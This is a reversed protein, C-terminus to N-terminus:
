AIRWRAGTERDNKRGGFSGSGGRRKVSNHRGAEIRDVSAERNPLAPSGADIPMTQGGPSIIPVSKGGEEDIVYVETEGAAAALGAVMKMLWATAAIKM